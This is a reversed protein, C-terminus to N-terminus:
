AHRVGSGFPSRRIAASAIELSLRLAHGRTRIGSREELGASGLLPTSQLQATEQPTLFVVCAVTRGAKLDQKSPKLIM